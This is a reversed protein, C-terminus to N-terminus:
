RPTSVPAAIAAGVVADPDAADYLAVTQGPAVLPQPADFVVAGAEWRCPAADGHASTQALARDGKALAPGIWAATEVALRASVAQESSGVTIRRARADVTLAYRRRGDLAIGLGRRQGVTVLEGAPVTGVVEGSSVDVLEARHLPMREALFGRRGRTSHIFCVDQSDPKAATGLGLETARARVEAKTLEGVPLVVRALERGSLMSLM